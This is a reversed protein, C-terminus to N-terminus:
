EGKLGFEKFVRVALAHANKVADAPSTGNIVEGFMDTWFNAAEMSEVAAVPKAPYYGSGNYGSPHDLYQKWVDTVHAAADSATIEPENWGWEYAPYVYGNSIRFMEKQIDASHMYRILQEAAERNKAGKIVFWRKGTGGGALVRGNPGIGKPPLSMYTDDKVPNKDVVAKAFM